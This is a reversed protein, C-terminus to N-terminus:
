NSTFIRVTSPPIPKNLWEYKSTLARYEQTNEQTQSIANEVERLNEIARIDETFIERMEAYVTNDSDYGGNQALYGIKIGNKRFISGSEPELEGLILRILTTKGEGNGGILGVRESESFTFSVNELLSGGCFGFYVNESSVLM